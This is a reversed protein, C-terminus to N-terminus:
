VDEDDEREAKVVEEDIAGRDMKLIIQYYAESNEFDHNLGSIDSNEMLIQAADEAIVVKEINNKETNDEMNISLSILDVQATDEESFSKCITDQETAGKVVIDEFDTEKAVEENATGNQVLDEHSVETAVEVILDGTADGWAGEKKIVISATVRETTGHNDTADTSTIHHQLTDQAANNWALDINEIEFAAGQLLSQSAQIQDESDGFAEIPMQSLLLRLRKSPPM